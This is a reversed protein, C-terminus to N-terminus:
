KNKFLTSFYSKSTTDLVTQNPFRCDDFDNCVCITTEVNTKGPCCEPYVSSSSRSRHQCKNWWMWTSVIQHIGSNRRQENPAATGHSGNSDAGLLCWEDEFVWVYLVGLFHMIKTWWRIFMGSFYLLPFVNSVTQLMDFIKLGM